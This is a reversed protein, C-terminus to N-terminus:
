KTEDFEFRITGTFFFLDIEDNKVERYKGTHCVIGSIREGEYINIIEECITDGDYTGTNPPLYVQFEILGYRGFRRGDKPGITHQNSDNNQIKFRVWPSNTPKSTSSGNTFRFSNSNTYAVPITSDFNNNFEVLLINKAEQRTM